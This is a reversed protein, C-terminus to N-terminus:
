ENKGQEKREEVAKRIEERVREGHVAMLAAKYVMLAMELVNVEDETALELSVPSETEEWKAIIEQTKDTLATTNKLHDYPMLDEEPLFVVKYQTGKLDKNIRREWAIWEDQIKRREEQTM